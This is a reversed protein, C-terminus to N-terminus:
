GVVTLHLWSDYQVAVVHKSVANMTLLTVTSDECTSQCQTGHMHIARSAFVRSLSSFLSPQPVSRRSPQRAYRINICISDPARARTQDLPGPPQPRPRLRPCKEMQASGETGRGGILPKVTEGWGYVCSGRRAHAADRAPRPAGPARARPAPPRPRANADRETGRAHTYVAPASQL